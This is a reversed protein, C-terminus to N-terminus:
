LANCRRAAERIENLPTVFPAINIKPMTRIREELQEMTYIGEENLYKWLRDIKEQTVKSSKDM